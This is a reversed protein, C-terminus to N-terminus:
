AAENSNLEIYNLQIISVPSNEAICFRFRFLINIKTQFYLAM